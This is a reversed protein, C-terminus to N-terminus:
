LFMPTILVYSCLLERCPVSSPAPTQGCKVTWRDRWGDGHRGRATGTQRKRNEASEHEKLRPLRPQEWRGSDCEYSAEEPALMWRLCYRLGPAAWAAAPLYVFSRGTWVPQRKGRWRSPLEKAGNRLQFVSKVPHYWTSNEFWLPKTKNLLMTRWTSYKNCGSHSVRQQQKTADLGFCRSTNILGNPPFPCPLRIYSLFTAGNNVSAEM